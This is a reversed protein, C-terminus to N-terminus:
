KPWQALRERDATGCFVAVPVRRGRARALFIDSGATDSLADVLIALAPKVRALARDASEGATMFTPELRAREVLAGILAAAVPDDSLILVKQHAHLPSM